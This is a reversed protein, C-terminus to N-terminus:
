VLGHRHAYAAAATRSDLGLKTLISRVHGKVTPLGIFLADAITRNSHGASLLLLVERERQSLGGGAGVAQEVDPASEADETQAEAIASQLSLERGASWAARLRQEGLAVRAATLARDYAPRDTAYVGGGFRERLAEEAGLLRGAREPQGRAAAAVAVGLLADAVVRLDGREGVLGLTDRYRAVSGAYDGQDRAVDGLDRLSRVGGLDYGSDRCVRLAREHRARAVVFDGRGHAVVGLNAHARGEAAAAISPDSITATLSLAEKLGLEAQDFHGRHNAIAGQWILM